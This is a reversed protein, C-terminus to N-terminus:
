LKIMRLFHNIMFIDLCLDPSKNFRLKLKCRLGYSMAFSDQSCQLLQGRSGPYSHTGWWLIYSGLSLLLLFPSPSPQFAIDDPSSLHRRVSSCQSSEWIVWAWKGDGVRGSVVTQLRELAKVGECLYVNMCFLLPCSILIFKYFFILTMWASLSM